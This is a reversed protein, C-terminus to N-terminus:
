KKLRKELAEVLGKLAEGTKRGTEVVTDSVSRPPSGGAPPLGGLAGMVPALVDVLPAAVEKASTVNEYSHHFNLDFERVEPARKSYDAIVLRDCRVQLRRILFERPRGAEAPPQRQNEPTADWGAPDAGANIVGHDNRVLTVAAVDVGADDIVPCQGFLSFLRASARLERIEVFEKRPFGPPNTITLGRLAVEGTFPNLYLTRVEVGFGTRERVLWSLASPLLLMWGLALCASITALFFLLKAGIGGCRAGNPLTEM